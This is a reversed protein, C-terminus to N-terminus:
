VRNFNFETSEIIPVLSVNVQEHTLTIDFSPAAEFQDKDNLFSPNRVQTVRLMGIGKSQLYERCKDGQIRGCVINCIDSATLQALNAPNRQSIAGIQFTSEYQQRETHTMRHDPDGPVYENKRGLFGYRKDGPIKDLFVMPGNPVGQQTPQFSQRVETGSLGADALAMLITTRVEKYLENDLM